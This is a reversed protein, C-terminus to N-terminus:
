KKANEFGKRLVPSFIVSECCCEFKRACCSVLDYLMGEGLTRQEAIGNLGSRYRGEACLALQIQSRWVGIDKPWNHRLNSNDTDLMTLGHLSEEAAKWNKEYLHM